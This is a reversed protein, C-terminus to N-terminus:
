AADQLEGVREDIMRPGAQTPHPCWFSRGDIPVLDQGFPKMEKGPSPDHFARIGPNGMATSEGAIKLAGM